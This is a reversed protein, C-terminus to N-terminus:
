IRLKTFEEMGPIDIEIMGELTSEQAKGNCSVPVYARFWTIYVIVIYHLSDREGTSVELREPM